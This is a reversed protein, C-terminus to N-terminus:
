EGEPLPRSTVVINVRDKLPRFKKPISDWTNRGMIVANRKIQPTVSAPSSSSSPVSTTVKAFYAMEKALRWPLKGGKGIGHSSTCAVILTLSPHQAM